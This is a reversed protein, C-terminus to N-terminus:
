APSGGRQQREALLHDIRARREGEADPFEGLWHHLYADDLQAQVNIITEIDFWDKPRNFFAKCLILDEASIVPITVDATYPMERTRAAVADHFPTNAFFLDVPVDGWRLRTQAINAIEREAKPRDALPFALSLADLVRPYENSPLAINIDVDHTYRPTGWYALAIAGGFGHPVNAEALVRHIVVIEDPLLENM